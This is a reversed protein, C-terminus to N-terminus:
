DGFAFILPRLAAFILEAIVILVLIRHIGKLDGLVSLLAFLPALALILLSFVAINDSNAFLLFQLNHMEVGNVKWFEKAPLHWTEVVREPKILSNIDLLYMSSSAALLLMGATTLLKLVKAFKLYYIESGAGM